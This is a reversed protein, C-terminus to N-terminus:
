GGSVENACVHIAEEFLADWRCAAATPRSYGAAEWLSYAISKWPEPGYAIPMFYERFTEAEDM